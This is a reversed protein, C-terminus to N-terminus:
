IETINDTNPKVEGTMVPKGDDMVPIDNTPEGINISSDDISETVNNGSNDIIPEEITIGSQDIDVSPETNPKVQ